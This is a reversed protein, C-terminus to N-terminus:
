CATSKEQRFFRETAQTYTPIHVGRPLLPKQVFCQTDIIIHCFCEVRSITSHGGVVFRLNGREPVVVVSSSGIRAINRSPIQSQIPESRAQANRKINQIERSAKRHMLLNRPQNADFAPTRDCPPNTQSEIVQKAGVWRRGL